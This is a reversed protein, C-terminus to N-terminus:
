TLNLQSNEQLMDAHLRPANCVKGEWNNTNKRLQLVSQIHPRKESTNMNIQKICNCRLTTSVQCRCQQSARDTGNVNWTQSSWDPHTLAHVTWSQREKTNLCAGVAQDSDYKVTTQLSYWMDVQQSIQQYQVLANWPTFSVHTCQICLGQKKAEVKIHGIWDILQSVTNIYLEACQTDRSVLSITDCFM